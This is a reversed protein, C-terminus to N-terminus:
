PVLSVEGNLPYGFQQYDERYFRRIALYDGM